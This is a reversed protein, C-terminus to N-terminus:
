ERRVKDNAPPSDEVVKSWLAAFRHWWSATTHTTIDQEREPIFKRWSPPDAM